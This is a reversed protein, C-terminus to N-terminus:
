AAADRLMPNDDLPPQLPPLPIAMPRACSQRRFSGGGPISFWGPSDDPEFSFDFVSLWTRVESNARLSAPNLPMPRAGGKNQEACKTAGGSFTAEHAHIQLCITRALQTACAVQLHNNLGAYPLILFRRSADGVDKSVSVRSRALWIMDSKELSFSTAHM